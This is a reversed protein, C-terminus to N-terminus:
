SSLEADLSEQYIFHIFNSPIEHTTALDNNSLGPFQHGVTRGIPKQDSQNCFVRSLLVMISSSREFSKARVSEGTDARTGFSLCCMPLKLHLVMTFLLSRYVSCTRLYLSNKTLLRGDTLKTANFGATSDMRRIQDTNIIRTLWKHLRTSGQLKHLHSVPGDIWAWSWTPARPAPTSRTEGTYLWVLGHHIDDLWIGYMYPSAHIHDWFSNAFGAVAVLKDSAVTLKRLSYAEVINFWLDLSLPRHLGFYPQVDSSTEIGNAKTSLQCYDEALLDEKCQWVVRNNFFHLVRRSLIYEQSVLRKSEM